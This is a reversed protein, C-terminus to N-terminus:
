ISSVPIAVDGGIQIVPIRKNNYYAKTTLINMKDTVKNVKFNNKQFEKQNIIIELKSEKDKNISLIGKAKDEELSIGFKSLDKLKVFREKNSERKNWQLIWYEPMRIAYVPVEIKNIFLEKNKKSAVFQTDFHFLLPENGEHTIWFETNNESVDRVKYATIYKGLEIKDLVVWENERVGNIVYLKVKQKENIKNLDAKINIILLSTIGDNAQFNYSGQTKILKEKQNTGVYIGTNSSNVLELGRHDKCIGKIRDTNKFVAAAFRKVDSTYLSRLKKPYYLDTKNIGSYLKKVKSISAVSVDNTLRKFLGKVDPQFSYIGEDTFVLINGKASKAVFKINNSKLSSNDTSFASCKQPNSKNIVYFGASTTGAYIYDGDIVISNTLTGNYYSYQMYSGYNYVEFRNNNENYQYNSFLNKAFVVPENDIRYLQFHSNEDINGLDSTIYIDKEKTDPLIKSKVKINKYYDEGYPFLPGMNDTSDKRTIFYVKKNEDYEVTFGYNKLDDVKFALQGFVDYAKIYKGDIFADIKSQKAKGISVDAKLPEICYLKSGNMIYVNDKEDVYKAKRFTDEQIFYKVLGYGPKIYNLMQDDPTQRRRYYQNGKDDSYLESVVPNGETALDNADNVLLSIKNQELDIIGYIMWAGMILVRDYGYFVKQKDSISIWTYINQNIPGYEKANGDNSLHVLKYRILVGAHDITIIFWKSGDLDFFVKDIVPEFPDFQNIKQQNIETNLYKNILTYESFQNDKDLYYAKGGKVVWLKGYSDINFFSNEEAPVEEVNDQNTIHLIKEGYQIWLSDDISKKVQPNEFVMSNFSVPQEDGQALKLLGADTLIWKTQNKNKYVGFLKEFSISQKNGYIDETVTTIAKVDQHSTGSIRLLGKDETGCWIYKNDTEISTIKQTPLEVSFKVNQLKDPQSQANVQVVASFALVLAFALCIIIKM